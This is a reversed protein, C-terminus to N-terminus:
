LYQSQLAALSLTKWKDWRGVLGRQGADVIASPRIVESRKGAGRFSAGPALAGSAATSSKFPTFSGDANKKLDNDSGLCYRNIPNPVSYSTVKDYM